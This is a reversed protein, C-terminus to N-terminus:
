KEGKSIAWDTARCYQKWMDGYRGGARVLADHTGEEVIKGKDVVLIKDADRVASLRHAIIIVTKDKMLESLAVRIKQENEPDAFATAEDLVLIPANKLIARAIVLRQREGGSLHIGDSGIVTEYGRPLKEVFERCQAAEAVAIVRERSAKPDGISINEFVSQKFLFVDQFVFGVTSMLYGSEMDRIDVGGIKISGGSIDYFRPILHAITSKGSGSAGVLATIEGQKATFDVGNLATQEGEDNYSFAVNEFSVSYESTTKPNKAEPLPSADLIKDMRAIGESIQQSGHTVYMIKMFLGPLAMSFIMYFIASLAFTSYDTVGSSLLIILPLLFLYLNQLVALFIVMAPKFAKTYGLAWEGHTKISEYFRRFSFITQNFAKVVSVGRVYEVAANNMDELTDQYKKLTERGRKGGTLVSQVVFLLIIPIFSCLGMRWDFIFLLVVAIIPTTFTSILDPFQHAIFGELREINEDVIKRLKGTSNQSHFGLPLSAIHETFDLKLQYLTKFAAAHSCMLAGYNLAIAGIAGGGALWGLSILYGGDLASLDNIHLALEEIIFYIAIFPAFSVVASLVSLVASAIILAKKTFALEFLRSPGQKQKSKEM